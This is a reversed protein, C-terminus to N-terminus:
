ILHPNLNKSNAMGEIAISGKPSDKQEWYAGLQEYYPKWWNIQAEEMIKKYRTDARLANWNKQSIFNSIVFDIALFVDLPHHMVRPNDLLILQRFTCTIQLFDSLPM